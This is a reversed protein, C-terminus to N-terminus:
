RRNLRYAIWWSVTAVRKIWKRVSKVKLANGADAKFVGVVGAPDKM